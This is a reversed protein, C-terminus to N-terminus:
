LFNDLADVVNSDFTRLAPNNIETSTWPGMGKATATNNYMQWHAWSFGESEAVMVVWSLWNLRDAVPADNDVGFEGLYVTLPNVGNRAAWAQNAATVAAFDSTVTNYEGNSGWSVDVGPSDSGQKTFPRPDYYHFTAILNADDTPLEDNNFADLLAQRTTFGDGSVIVKRNANGADARIATLGVSTIQEANGIDHPENLIEFVM